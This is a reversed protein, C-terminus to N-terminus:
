ENNNAGKITSNYEFYKNETEIIEYRKSDIDVNLDIYKLKFEYKSFSLFIVDDIYFFLWKNDKDMEIKDFQLYIYNESIKVRVANRKKYM